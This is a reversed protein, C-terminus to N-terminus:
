KIGQGGHTVSKSLRNLFTIQEVDGAQALIAGIYAWDIETIIGKNM